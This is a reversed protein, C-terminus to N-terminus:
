SGKETLLLFSMVRTVVIALCEKKTTRRGSDRMKVQGVLPWDGSDLTVDILFNYEDDEHYLWDAQSVRVALKWSYALPITYEFDGDPEDQLWTHLQCILDYIRDETM